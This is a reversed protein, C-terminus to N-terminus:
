LFVRYDCKLAEALRKEREKGISRKGNEMESIHRRPIGTLEALQVQTLDERTRYGRLAVACRSQGTFYKDFFEDATISGENGKEPEICEM